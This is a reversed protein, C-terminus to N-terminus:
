VEHIPDAAPPQRLRLDLAGNAEGLLLVTRRGQHEGLRGPDAVLNDYLVLRLGAGRVSRAGAAEAAPHSCAGALGRRMPGFGPVVAQDGPSGPWRCLSALALECRSLRFNGRRIPACRSVACRRRSECSTGCAETM